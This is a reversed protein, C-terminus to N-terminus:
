LDRKLCNEKKDTRLIIDNDRCYQWLSPFSGNENREGQIIGKRILKQNAMDIYHEGYGYQFSLYIESQRDTGFNITVIASFYSNGNVKDFWERAHIDITSVKQETLTTM